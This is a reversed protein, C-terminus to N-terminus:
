PPDNMPLNKIFTLTESHTMDEDSFSYAQQSLPEFSHNVVM